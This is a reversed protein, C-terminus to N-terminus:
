DKVYKRKSKKFGKDVERPDFSWTGSKNQKFAYYESLLSAILQAYVPRIFWMEALLTFFEAGKRQKELLEGVLDFTSTEAINPREAIAHLEKVRADDIGIRDDPVESVDLQYEGKRSTPTLFFVGGSPPLDEYLPKLGFALGLNNNVWLPFRGKPSIITAELLAPEEPFFPNDGVTPMTGSAHHLVTTTCRAGGDEQAICEGGMTAMPTKVLDRLNGDLGDDTLEVDLEEGEMTQFHYEQFQLSEPMDLIDTPITEFKRWRDWGVNILEGQKQLADGLAAEWRDYDPDSSDVEMVQELIQRSTILGDARRIMLEIEEMDSPTIAVEGGAQRTAEAPAGEVPPEQAIRDWVTGLENVLAETIWTGDSLRILHSDVLTKHFAIPDFNDPAQEYALYAVAKGSVPAGLAKILNAVAQAPKKWESEPIHGRLANVDEEDDFNEFLVDEPNGSSVDLVWDSPSVREEDVVVFGPRHSVLRRVTETEVEPVAGTAQAIEVGITEVTLPRGMARLFDDIIREVPRQPDIDRAALDWRRDRQIFRPDLTLADRIVKASVPQDEAVYGTVQGTKAPEGVQLLYQVARDAVYRLATERLDAHTAAESM